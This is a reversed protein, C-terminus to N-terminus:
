PASKPRSCYGQPRSVKTWVESSGFISIGLYGTVRVQTSSLIEAFGSFSMGEDSVYVTGDGWTGDTQKKFGSVVELGCVLRDRLEPDPNRYDRLLKGDPGFPKKLWAVRGCRAAGCAKIELIVEGDSDKWFGDLAEAALTSGASYIIWSVLFIAVRLASLPNFLM